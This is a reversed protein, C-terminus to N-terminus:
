AASRTIPEPTGRVATCAPDSCYCRLPACYAASDPEPRGARASPTHEPCRWGEAYPRTDTRPCTVSCRHQGPVNM